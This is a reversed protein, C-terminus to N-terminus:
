CDNVHMTLKACVLRKGAKKKVLGPTMSSGRQNSTLEAGGGGAPPKAGLAGAPPAGAPPAGARLVRETQQVHARYFVFGSFYM